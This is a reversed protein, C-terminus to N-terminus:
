NTKFAFPSNSGAANVKRTLISGRRGKPRRVKETLPGGVPDVAEADPLLPTEQPNEDFGLPKNIETGLAANVNPVKDKGEFKNVQTAGAEFSAGAIGTTARAITRGPNSM